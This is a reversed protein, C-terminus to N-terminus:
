IFEFWGTIIIKEDNSIQGKHTHTFDSPWILTLGKKAPTILNQYKFYTGGNKVDNLYTMFVLLRNASIKTEREYHWVKYGGKKPYKQINFHKINFRDAGNLGPFKKIYKELIKQLANRYNIIKFDTNDHTLALDISDKIKKNPGNLTTGTFTKQLNEDFYKIVDDCIKKPIYWGKIFYDKSIKYEKFM